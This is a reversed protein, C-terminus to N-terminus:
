PHMKSCNNGNEKGSVGCPAFKPTLTTLPKAKGWSEGRGACYKASAKRVMVRLEQEQEPPPQDLWQLRGYSYIAEYSKLM